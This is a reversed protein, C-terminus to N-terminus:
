YRIKYPPPESKICKSLTYFFILKEEKNVYLESAFTFHFQLKLINSIGQCNRFIVTTASPKLKSIFGESM